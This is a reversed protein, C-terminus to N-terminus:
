YTHLLTCVNNKCFISSMKKTWKQLTPALIKHINSGNSINQKLEKIKLKKLPKLNNKNM